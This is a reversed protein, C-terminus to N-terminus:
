LMGDAVHYTQTSDILDDVQALEQDVVEPITLTKPSFRTRKGVSLSRCQEWGNSTM